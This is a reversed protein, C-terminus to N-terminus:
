DKYPFIERAKLVKGDQPLILIEDPDVRARRVSKMGYETSYHLRDRVPEVHLRHIPPQQYVHQQELVHLHFPCKLRNETFILAIAHWHLGDNVMIDQLSSRFSKGVPYDPCGVWIPLIDRSAQSHPCRLIRTLTQAYLREVAHRMESQVTRASGPMPRFTISLFYPDFGKQQLEEMWNGYTSVLDRKRM